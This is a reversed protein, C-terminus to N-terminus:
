PLGAGPAASPLARGLAAKRPRSSVNYQQGGWDLSSWLQLAHGADDGDRVLFAANALGRGGDIQAGAQSDGLPAREHDVHIRLAVRGAPDADLARVHVRGHVVDHDLSGREVVDDDAAEMKREEVHRGRAAVQDAGLDLQDVTRLALQHQPARELRRAAPVIEDQHVARRREAQQRQVREGRRVGHQNRDLALEVRQLPQGLEQVRDAQNLTVDIRAQLYVTHQQGHEVLPQVERALDRVLGLLVEAVADVARGNRAVYPKRLRRTEA